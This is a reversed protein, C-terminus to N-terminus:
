EHISAGMLGPKSNVSNNALKLCSESFLLHFTVYNNKSLGANLFFDGTMYSGGEKGNM